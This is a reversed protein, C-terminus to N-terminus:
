NSVEIRVIQNLINSSNNVVKTDRSSVLDNSNNVRNYSSHNIVAVVGTDVGLDNNDLSNNLKNSMEMDHM